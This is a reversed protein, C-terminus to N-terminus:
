HILPLILVHSYRFKMALFSRTNNRITRSMRRRQLTMMRPLTMIKRLLIAAKRMLVEMLLLVVLQLLIMRRPLPSMKRRMTDDDTFDDDELTTAGFEEMDAADKVASSNDMADTVSADDVMDAGGKSAAQSHAVGSDDDVSDATFAAKQETVSARVDCM